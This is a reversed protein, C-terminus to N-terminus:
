GIGGAIMNIAHAMGMGVIVLIAISTAMVAVFKLNWRRAELRSLAALLGLCAAVTVVSSFNVRDLFQKTVVHLSTGVVYFAAVVAIVNVVSAGLTKRVEKM